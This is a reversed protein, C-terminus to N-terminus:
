KTMEYSTSILHKMDTATISGDLIVSNWHDKNLHYAPIISEYEERWQEIMGPECKVNIWIHDEREFIWAFTKKNHQHRILTWNADKFPHDEYVNDYAMCYDIAEQKSKM